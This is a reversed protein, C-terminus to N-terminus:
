LDKEILGLWDNFYLSCLKWFATWHLKLETNYKTETAELDATNKEANETKNDQINLEKLMCAYVASELYADFETIATCLMTFALNSVTTEALPIKALYLDRIYHLYSVFFDLGTDSHKAFDNVVSKFRKNYAKKIKKIIKLQQKNNM